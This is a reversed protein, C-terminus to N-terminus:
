QTPATLLYILICTLKLHFAVYKVTYYECGAHSRATIKVPGLPHNYRHYDAPALRFIALSSDESMKNVGDNDKDNILEKISFNKGKIWIKKATAANDFVTLRCDAASGVIKTNGKEAIPRADPKLKRFFFSNRTPYKTMDTELLISTDVSYTKIFNQIFDQVAKPDSSDDYTVGEKVSMSKLLNEVRNWKLLATEKGGYFLLHMGVRVYLPMPEFFVEGSSRVCVNNGMRYQLFRRFKLLTDLLGVRQSGCRLAGQKWQSKM